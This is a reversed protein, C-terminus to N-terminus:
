PFSGDVRIFFIIGGEQELFEPFEPFSAEFGSMARSQPKGVRGFDRSFKGTKGFEYRAKRLKLYDSGKFSERSKPFRERSFLGARSVHLRAICPNYGYKGSNGSFNISLERINKMM